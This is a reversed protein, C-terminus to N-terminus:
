AAGSLFHDVHVVNRCHEKFYFSWPNAVGRTFGRKMLVKAYPGEWNTAADRTGYLSERLRGFVPYDSTWMGGPLEWIKSTQLFGECLEGFVAFRLDHLGVANATNMRGRAKLAPAFQLDNLSAESRAQPM